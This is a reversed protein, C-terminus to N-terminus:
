SDKLTQIANLNDSSHTQEMIVFGLFTFESHNIFEQYDIRERFPLTVEKMAYCFLIFGKEAMDVIYEYAGSPYTHKSCNQLIKEATGKIFIVRKETSGSSVREGEMMINKKTLNHEVEEVVEGQLFAKKERITTIVALKM